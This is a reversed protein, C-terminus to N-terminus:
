GAVGDGVLVFGYNATKAWPSLGDLPELWGSAQPGLEGRDRAFMIVRLRLTTTSVRPRPHGALHQVGGDGERFDHLGNGQRLSVGVGSQLVDSVGVFVRESPWSTGADLQAVMHHEDGLEHPAHFLLVGKVHRLKPHKTPALRQAAKARFVQCLDHTLM